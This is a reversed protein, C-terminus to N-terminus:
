CWLAARREHLEVPLGNGAQGRQYPLFGLFEAPDIGVKVAPVEPIGYFSSRKGLPVEADLHKGSVSSGSM